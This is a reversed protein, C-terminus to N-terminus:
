LQVFEAPVVMSLGNQALRELVTTDGTSQLRVPPPLVDVNNKQPGSHLHMAHRAVADATDILRVGPGLRQAIRDAVFPYHTCGLM